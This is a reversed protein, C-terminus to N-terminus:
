KTSVVAGVTPMVELRDESFVPSEAMMVNVNESSGSALKAQSPVKPSTTTVPPVTPAILPVPSVREAMKVGVALKALVDALMETM